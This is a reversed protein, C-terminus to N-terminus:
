ENEFVRPIKIEGSNIEPANSLIDDTDIGKESIDERLSNELNTVHATPYIKETDIKKLSEFRSIIKGLDSRLNDNIKDVSLASLDAINKFEEKSIEM